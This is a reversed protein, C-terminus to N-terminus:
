CRRLTCNERVEFPYKGTLSKFCGEIFAYRDRGLLGRNGAYRSQCEYMAQSATMVGTTDSPSEKKAAKSQAPGANLLAAVFLASFLMIPFKMPEERGVFFAKM